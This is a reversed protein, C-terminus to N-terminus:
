RAVMLEKSYSGNGCSWPVWTAGEVKSDMATFIEAKERNLLHQQNFGAM